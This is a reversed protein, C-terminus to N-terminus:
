VSQVPTYGPVKQGMISEIAVKRKFLNQLRARTADFELQFNGNYNTLLGELKAQQPGLVTATGKIAEYVELARPKPYRLETLQKIFRDVVAQGRTVGKALLGNMQVVIRNIDNKMYYEMWTDAIMEIEPDKQVLEDEFLASLDRGQAQDVMNVIAVDKMVEMTEGHLVSRRELSNEMYLELETAEGDIERLYNRDKKVEQFAVPFREQAAGHAWSSLFTKKTEQPLLSYTQEVLHIDDPHQGKSVQEGALLAILERQRQRDKFIFNRETQVGLEM